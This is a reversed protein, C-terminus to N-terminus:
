EPQESAPGEPEAEGTGAVAQGSLHRLSDTAADPAEVAEAPPVGDGADRPQPGGEGDWVGLDHEIREM